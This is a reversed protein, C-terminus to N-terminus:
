CHRTSPFYIACLTSTYSSRAPRQHTHIYTIYTHVYMHSNYAPRQRSATDHVQSTFQACPARTHAKHLGSIHMYTHIYTCVYALQICTRQRSATDQLQPTIHTLTHISKYTHIYKYKFCVHMCVYIYVYLMRVYVCVFVCLLTRSDVGAHEIKAAGSGMQASPDYVSKESLLTLM